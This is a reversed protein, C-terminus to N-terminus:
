RSLNDGVPLIALTLVTRHAQGEAVGGEDVGRGVGIWTLNTHLLRLATKHKATKGGNLYM